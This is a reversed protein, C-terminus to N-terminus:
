RRLINLQDKFRRFRDLFIWGIERLGQGTLCQSQNKLFGRQSSTDGEIHPHRAHSSVDDEQIVADRFQAFTLGNLVHGFIQFSPDM